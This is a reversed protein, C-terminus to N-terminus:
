DDGEQALIADYKEGCKPCSDRCEKWEEVPSDKECFQCRYVNDGKM